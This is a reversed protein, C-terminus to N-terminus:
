EDSPSSTLELFMKIAQMTQFLASLFGKSDNEQVVFLAEQDKPFSPKYVTVMAIFKKDSQITRQNKEEM